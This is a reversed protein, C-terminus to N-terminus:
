KGRGEIENLLAEIEGVGWMVLDYDDADAIVKVAKRIKKIDIKTMKKDKGSEKLKKLLTGGGVRLPSRYGAVLGRSNGRVEV